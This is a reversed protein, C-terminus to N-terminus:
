KPRDPKTPDITEDPPQHGTTGDVSKQTSSPTGVPNINKAVENEKATERKSLATEKNQFDNVEDNEGACSVASVILLSALAFKLTKNKM